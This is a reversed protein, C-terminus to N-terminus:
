DNLNNSLSDNELINLSDNSDIKPETQYIHKEILTNAQGITINYLFLGGKALLVIVTILSGIRGIWVWFDNSKPDVLKRLYNKDTQKLYERISGYKLLIRIAENKIKLRDISNEAKDFYLGNYLQMFEKLENRALTTGMETKYDSALNRLSIGAPRGNKLKDLIYDLFILYKENEKEPDKPIVKEVPM